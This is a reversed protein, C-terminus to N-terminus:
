KLEQVELWNPGSSLDVKLPVQLRSALATTMEGATGDPRAISRVETMAVCVSACMSSASLAKSTARDVDAQRAGGPM